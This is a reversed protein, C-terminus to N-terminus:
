QLSASPNIAKLEDKLSIKLICEINEGEYSDTISAPLIINMVGNTADEVLMDAQHFVMSKSKGDKSQIQVSYYYRSADEADRSVIRLTNSFVPPSYTCKSDIWFLDGKFAYLVHRM